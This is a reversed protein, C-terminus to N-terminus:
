ADQMTPAACRAAIQELTDMIMARPPVRVGLDREIHAIVQMSLLSHGGIDFFNDKLGVAPVGLAAQWIEAVRREVPTRPPEPEAGAPAAGMPDPLARRDVKGNATLPLASLEVFFSPVMYDPLSAKAHKRLESVTATQDPEYVVYAVLRKDGGSGDRVATVAQRIAPHAALVSEIEGLEVRFGRIKVQHDIRGLCELRGDARFRALDGTRYLRAGARGSFPDAVFRAATLEARGLYGRAVGAGGICLEGPVGVPVPRLAADLVYVETNAIPRGISVPGDGSEVRAITSWITTETPGYMNWVERGSALLRDALERSLAEGGCLIKLDPRGAWGDDLLMRWTAPTAQLVTASQAEILAALRAPDTAEDRTALVVRAGTVLPLYIELGAIDFSLTTVSLLRDAPTLGPERQMSLLFNALAGHTIEVGKPQGTSGSTYLVYALADARALGPEVRDATGIAGAETDLCVVRADTDTSVLDRLGSDTVVIAARSDRLMFRLREPPFAPDLPVYAAGTQLVALLAAVMDPSRDLCLGILTGPGAGAARLYGALRGARDDLAAYDLTEGACVVAPASPTAAAQRAFLDVVTDGAPFPQATANWDHLITRREAASMMEIADIRADPDRAVAELVTLYHDFFREITGADFLAASYAYVIRHGVQPDISITLDFQTSRKPLPFVEVQLGPLELRRFPANQVNFLVQFFPPRNTGRDPQLERVLRDFPLDQNTYAGLATERVRGLLERFTPDGSVDTRFVLTNVFTGVVDELERATRNAIPTGVALDTQGTYRNMVVKFAAVLVMFLTARESAALQRLRGLLAPALPVVGYRGQGGTYGVRPRDAPLETVHLGALRQRWYALQGQLRPGDMWLRHWYAFDRYAVSPDRVTPARGSVFAAYREAFEAGLLGMSWQDAVAHHVCVTALYREEALRVLGLRLLPGRDLDFAANAQELAFALAAAERDAEPLGRVDRERVVAEAPPAVRQVPTGDILPFTTRLSAHDRIMLTWAHQMAERSLSGSIWTAGSINYAVGDPDLQQLFWMREQPVALLIERDSPAPRVVLADDGRARGQLLALLASKHRAIQERLEPTLTGRPASCRLRDGDATLVVGEAELYSVLDAPTALASV